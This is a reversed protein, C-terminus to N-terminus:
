LSEELNKLNRKVEMLFDEDEFKRRIKRIIYNRILAYKLLYPLFNIEEKSLTKKSHKNYSNIIFDLSDKIYKPKEMNGEFLLPAEFEKVRNSNKITEFDIIKPNDKDWIINSHNLDRHIFGKPFFNIKENIKDYILKELEILLFKNKQENKSLDLYFSVINSESHYEEKSSLFKEIDGSHYRIIDSFNNHLLAINTGLLSFYKLNRKKPSNNRIFEELGYLEDEIRFTFEMKDKRNFIKPFYKPLKDALQSLLEAKEKNKGRYKLIYEKKNKGTIYYIGNKTRGLNLPSIKKLGIGYRKKLGRSLEELNKEKLNEREFVSKPTNYDIDKNMLIIKGKDIANKINSIPSVELYSDYVFIFANKVNILRNSNYPSIILNNKCEKEFSIKGKTYAHNSEERFFNFKSAILDKKLLFSLSNKEIISSNDYDRIELLSKDSNLIIEEM